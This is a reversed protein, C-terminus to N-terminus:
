IGDSDGKNPKYISRPISHYDGESNNQNKCRIDIIKICNFPLSYYRQGAKLDQREVEIYSESKLIIEELADKIYAISRGTSTMGARDMIEQVKM